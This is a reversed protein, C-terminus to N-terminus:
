VPLQFFKNLAWVDRARLGQFAVGIGHNGDPSSSFWRVTAPVEVPERQTPVYFKLQLQQGMGTQVPGLLFMGGLSMNRTRAPVTKGDM